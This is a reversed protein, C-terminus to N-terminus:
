ETVEERPIVNSEFDSCDLLPELLDERDVLILHIGGEKYCRGKNQYRCGMLPCRVFKKM